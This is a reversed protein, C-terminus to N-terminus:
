PVPWEYPLNNPVNKFYKSYHKKDKRLLNSKHSKHFTRNGFWPPMSGSITPASDPYARIVEAFRAKMTDKYGRHIWEDCMFYGYWLLGLEYGRWM